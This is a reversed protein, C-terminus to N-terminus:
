LSLLSASNREFQARLPHTKPLSDALQKRLIESKQGHARARDMDGSAKFVIACTAQVRLEATPVKAGACATLAKAVHDISRVLVQM